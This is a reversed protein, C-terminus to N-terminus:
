GTIAAILAKLKKHAPTRGRALQQAEGLTLLPDPFPLRAVADRVKGQLVYSRGDLV